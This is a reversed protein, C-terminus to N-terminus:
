SGAKRAGNCGLAEVADGCLVGRHKHLLLFSSNSLKLAKFNCAHNTYIHLKLPLKELADLDM